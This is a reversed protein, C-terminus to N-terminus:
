NEASAQRMVEALTTRAMEHAPDDRVAMQLERIALDQRGADLLVLAQMVRISTDEPAVDLADDLSNLAASYDGMRRSWMAKLIYGDPRDPALGAARVGAERVRALDRLELSVHGLAIWAQVDNSGDGATLKLLIDRAEVPRDLEQLCQVRLHMLDRRTENEARRLMAALYFDAESYKDMEMLAHVLDETTSQDEPALIRAQNFRGIAADYDGRMMAMHGLLQQIGGDLRFTEERESLFAHARDTQGMDIMMEASALAFQPNTPSMEAARMYRALAEDNNQVRENIVGQYYQADVNDAELSEAQQFCALADTLRNMETLIRGKLVHARAVEPNLEISSEIKVLAKELEGALFASEAMQFENASKLDDMRQRSADAHEQTYKGHGQCGGAVALLAAALSAVLTSSVRTKM